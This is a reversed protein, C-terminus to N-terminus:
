DEELKEYNSMRDKIIKNLIFTDSSKVECNNMLLKIETIVIGLLTLIIRDLQKLSQLFKSFTLKSAFESISIILFSAKESDDMLLISIGFLM